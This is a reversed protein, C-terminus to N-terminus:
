YSPSPSCCRLTVQGLIFSYPWAAAQGLDGRPSGCRHSSRVTAPRPEIIKIAEEFVYYALTKRFPYWHPFSLHFTSFNSTSNLCDASRVQRIPRETAIRFVEAAGSLALGRPRTRCLLLCQREYRAPAM